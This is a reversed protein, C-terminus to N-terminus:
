TTEKYLYHGLTLGLQQSVSVATNKDIMCILKTTDIASKALVGSGCVLLYRMAVLDSIQIYVDDEHFPESSLECMIALMRDLSFEKPGILLQNQKSKADTTRLDNRQKSSRQPEHKFMQCDSGVPNYSALFSAVLVVKSLQTINLQTRIKCSDDTKQLRAIGQNLQSMDTKLCQLATLPDQGLYNTYLPALVRLCHELDELDRNPFASLLHSTLPEPCGVATSLMECIIKDSLVMHIHRSMVSHRKINFPFKTAIILRLGIIISPLKALKILDDSDSTLVHKCVITAPKPLTYPTIADAICLANSIFSMIESCTLGQCPIVTFGTPFCSWQGSIFYLNPPNRSSLLKFLDPENNITIRSM